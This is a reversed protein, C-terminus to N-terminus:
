NSLQRPQDKGVMSVNSM